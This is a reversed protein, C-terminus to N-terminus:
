RSIKLFLEAFLKYIKAFFETIKAVFRMWGTMEESSGINGSIEEVLGFLKALFMLNDGSKAAEVMSDYTETSAYGTKEVLIRGLAYQNDKDELNEKVYNVIAMFVVPKNGKVEARFGGDSGSEAVSATGMMALKEADIESLTLGLKTGVSAIIGNLDPLTVSVGASAAFNSITEAAAPYVNAFDPLVDTAYNVPDAILADIADCVKTALYEMIGADGKSMATSFDEVKGVHLSEVLPVLAKSYVDEQGFWAGMSGAFIILAGFNTSGLGIVKAFAERDGPTIGWKVQANDVNEWKGECTIFLYEYAEPYNEKIGNGDMSNTVNNKLLESLARVIVTAVEDTYIVSKLDVKEFVKLLLGNLKDAYKVAKEASVDGLVDSYDREAANYAEAEATAATETVAGAFVAGFSGLCLMLALLVSLIKKSTKM